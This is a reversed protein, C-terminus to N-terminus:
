VIIFCCLCVNLFGNYLAYTYNHGWNTVCLFTSYKSRKPPETALTDAQPEPWSGLTRPDLGADPETSLPFGAEGEAESVEGWEHERLHILLIKFFFTGITFPVAYFLYTPCLQVPSLFCGWMFVDTWPRRDSEQNWSLGHSWPGPISGQMLRGTWHPTQKERERQREGQKCMSERERELIFLYIKPPSFFFFSFM